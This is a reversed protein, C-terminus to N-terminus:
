RRPRGSTFSSGKGLKEAIDKAQKEKKLRLNHTDIDYQEILEYERCTLDSLSILRDKLLRGQRLIWDYQYLEEKQRVCGCTLMCGRAEKEEELM